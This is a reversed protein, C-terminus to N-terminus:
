WWVAPAQQQRSCCCCLCLLSTTLMKPTEASQTTWCLHLSGCRMPQLCQVVTCAPVAKAPPAPTDALASSWICGTGHGACESLVSINGHTQELNQLMLQRTRRLSATVDQSKDVVDQERAFKQQRQAFDVAGILERRQVACLVACCAAHISHM